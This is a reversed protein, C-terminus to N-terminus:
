RFSRAYGESMFNIDRTEGPPPTTTPFSFNPNDMAKSAWTVTSPEVWKHMEAHGDCYGLTTRKNHWMALPDVWSKDRVNMAWSGENYGRTDMEEVFMYKQAPSKIEAYKRAITFQNNWAEGNAGGVISFTIFAASPGQKRRDAPCHYVGVSKGVYTFLRGRMAAAKKEDLDATASSPADVWNGGGVSGGILRDDNADKYMLWALSLTRTNSTCHVRRAQDRVSNLAPMLMAMLIAIIAIVVLLEILTFAKTKM